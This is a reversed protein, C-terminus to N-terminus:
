NNKPWDDPGAAGNQLENIHMRISGWDELSMGKVESSPTMGKLPSSSRARRQRGPDLCLVANLGDASLASWSLPAEPLAGPSLPIVQLDGELPYVGAPVLRESSNWRRRAEMAELRADWAEKIAM